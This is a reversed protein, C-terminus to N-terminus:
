PIGYLFCAVVTNSRPSERCVFVFCSDFEPVCVSLELCSLDGLKWEVTTQRDHIRNHSYEPGKEIHLVTVVYEWDLVVDCGNDYEEYDLLQHGPAEVVIRVIMAVVGKSFEEHYNHGNEVSSPVREGKEKEKDDAHTITDDLWTEAFEHPVDSTEGHCM